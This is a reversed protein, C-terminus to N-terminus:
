LKLGGLRRALTPAAKILERLQSETDRMQRDVADRQEKVKALDAESAAVRDDLEKIVDAKPSIFYARGIGKYMATADPLAQLESRTLVSRQKQINCMREQQMLRDNITTQRLIKDQLELLDQLAKDDVDAEVM